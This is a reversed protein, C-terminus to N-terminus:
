ERHLYVAWSRQFETYWRRLIIDSGTRCTSSGRGGDGSSTPSGASPIMRTRTHADLWLDIPTSAPVRDFAGSDPKSDVWYLYSAGQTHGPSPVGHYGSIWNGSDDHRMGEWKGSAVTTDKLVYRHASIIISSRNVEVTRMWWRSTEGSRRWWSQQRTPRARSETGARRHRGDDPVVHERSSVLLAGVDGRHSVAAQWCGSWLVCHTRRDPRDMRDRLVDRARVLRASGVLSVLTDESAR